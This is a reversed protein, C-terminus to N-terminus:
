QLEVPIAFRVHVDARRGLALAVLGHSRQHNGIPKAPRQLHDLHRRAVGLVCLEGQERGATAARHLDAVRNRLRCAGHAALHEVACSFLQLGVHM